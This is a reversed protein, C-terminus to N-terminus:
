KLSRLKGFNHKTDIAIYSDFYKKYNKLLSMTIRQYFSIFEKLQNDDMRLKKPLEHEQKKRWKFVQKFSPVKLFLSFDSKKYISTYYKKSMINTYKRWKLSKDLFKEMDNIPTNIKLNDCEKHGVCWGELIFIDYPFKINIFKSKLIDDHGKSFLPLKYKNKKNSRFRKLIKKLLHINHTGPVGRILFLKSIKNSLKLREKKNLYFNDISLILVKLKKKKKNKKVNYALTTKGTNQAGKILCLINKRKKKLFVIKETIDKIANIYKKNIM